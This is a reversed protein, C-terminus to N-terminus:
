KKLLKNGISLIDKGFIPAFPFDQFGMDKLLSKQLKYFDKDWSVNDLYVLQISTKIVEFAEKSVVEDPTYDLCCQLYNCFHARMRDDNKLHDLDARLKKLSKLNKKKFKEYKM